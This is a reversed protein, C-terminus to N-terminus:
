QKLEVTITEGKLIIDIMDEVAERQDPTLLSIKEQIAPVAFVDSESERKIGDRVVQPLFPNTYLDRLIWNIKASYNKFLYVPKTGPNDRIFSQLHEDAMKLHQISSVINATAKM